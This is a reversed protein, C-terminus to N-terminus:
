HLKFANPSIVSVAQAVALALMMALGILYTSQATWKKM